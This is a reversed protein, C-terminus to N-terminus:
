IMKYFGNIGVWKVQRRVAFDVLKEVKPIQEPLAAIISFRKFVETMFDNNRAVLHMSEFHELGLEYITIAIINSSYFEVIPRWEFM